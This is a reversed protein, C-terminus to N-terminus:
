VWQLVAGQLGSARQLEAGGVPRSRGAYGAVAAAYGAGRGGVGVVSCGLGLGCGVSYCM